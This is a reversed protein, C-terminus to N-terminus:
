VEPFHQSIDMSDHLIRIVEVADSGVRYFIYHRGQSGVHYSYYGSMLEERPKGLAPNAAIKTLTDYFLKKYKLRQESGWTKQTYKVINKLDSRAQPTINLKKRVSM